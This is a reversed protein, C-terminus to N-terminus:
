HTHHQERHFSQIISNYFRMSLFLEEKTIQHNISVRGIGNLLTCLIKHYENKKDNGAFDIIAEMRKEDLVPLDYFHKLLSIIIDLSKKDLLKKEASLFSECIMGAAVAEGHLLTSVGDQLFASEIAHGITHGFNLAKRMGKENPDSETIKSKIKVSHIIIKNWDAPLIKKTALNQFGKKDAILYHKLVEAFGSLIERKHLTKLFGPYIFVAKPNNFLGIVNKHHFFDIGTKGGISADVQSLLTTPVNIFDIGRMYLGACLGGIDSIVGGGINILLSKRDAGHAVLEMWINNSTEYKKNEEGSSIVISLHEPLFKKLLPYCHKHTNKDSLVFVSSYNKSSIFNGALQLADEDIFVPYNALKIKM